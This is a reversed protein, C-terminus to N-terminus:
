SEFVTIQRRAALQSALSRLEERRSLDFAAISCLGPHMAGPLPSVYAKLIFFEDLGREESTAYLGLSTVKRRTFKELKALQRDFEEVTNGSRAAAMFHEELQCEAGREKAAQHAWTWAFEGDALTGGRREVVTHVGLSHADGDSDFNAQVLIWSRETTHHQCHVTLRRLQGWRKEMRKLTRGPNRFNPPFFLADIIEGLV